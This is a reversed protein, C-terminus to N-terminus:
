IKDIKLNQELDKLILRSAGLRETFFRGAQTEIDLNPQQQSQVFEKFENTDKIAFAIGNQIADIAEQFKEFRPGFCVPIHYILAELINHIGKGFGGGIYAFTAYKYLSSLYGIEDMLLIKQGQYQQLQSYLILGEKFFQQIQQLHIADVKHPVLIVKWGLELSASIGECTVELDESWISGAIWIKSSNCFLDIGPIVKPQKSIQEVRDFRTDGSCLLNSFSKEKLLEFTEQNQVYLKQASKLKNLLSHFVPRLLFHRKRIILSVFCFPIKRHNLLHLCNFWFDYKVFLVLDPKLYDIFTKIESYIDSPFYCVYDAAPYQSLRDYGSPSFFSLIIQHQPYETRISELLVRSQEFEGLSAVHFWIRKGSQNPHQDVFELLKTQWDKRGNVWAKADARFWAAFRISKFYLPILWRYLYYM